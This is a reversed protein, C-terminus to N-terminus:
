FAGHGAVDGRGIGGEDIVVDQLGCIPANGTAAALTIQYTVPESFTLALPTGGGGSFSVPVASAQAAFSIATIAVATAAFWPWRNKRERKNLYHTFQQPM